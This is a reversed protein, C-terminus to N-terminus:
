RPRCRARQVHRAITLLTRTGSTEDGIMPKEDRKPRITAARRSRGARRGGAARRAAEPPELDERGPEHGEAVARVVGLLRHADDGQREEGGAHDRGDVDRQPDDDDRGGGDGQARGGAAPPDHPRHAVPDHLELRDVAEGGLGGGGGDDEPAAWKPMGTEVVCTMELAIMPTPELLPTARRGSPRPGCCGRRRPRSSGPRRGTPASDQTTRSRARCGTVWAGGRCTHRGM